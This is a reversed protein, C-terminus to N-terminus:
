LLDARGEGSDQVGEMPASGTDGSPHAQGEEAAQPPPPPAQGGGVAGAM